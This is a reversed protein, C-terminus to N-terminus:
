RKAGTKYTKNDYFFRLVLLAGLFPSKSKQQRILTLFRIVFSFASLITIQNNLNEIQRIIKVINTLFFYFLIFFINKLILIPAFIMLHYSLASSVGHKDHNQQRIFPTFDYSLSLVNMLCPNFLLM